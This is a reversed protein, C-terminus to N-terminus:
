ATAPLNSFTSPSKWSADSPSSCSSRLKMRWDLHNKSPCTPFSCISMMLCRGTNSDYLLLFSTLKFLGILHSLGEPTRSSRRSSSKTRVSESLSFIIKLLCKSM